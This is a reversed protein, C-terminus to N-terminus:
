DGFVGVEMGGTRESGVLAEWQGFGAPLLPSPHHTLFRGGELSLSHVMKESCEPKIGEFKRIM